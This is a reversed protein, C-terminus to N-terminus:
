GNKVPVGYHAKFVTVVQEGDIEATVKVKVDGLLVSEENIIFEKGISTGAGVGEFLESESGAILEINLPYNENNDVKCTVVSKGDEENLVAEATVDIVYLKVSNSTVEGATNFVSVSYTGADAKTVFDRRFIINDSENFGDPALIIEGDKFWQYGLGIGKADVVFGVEDGPVAAASVPQSIIVPPEAVTDYTRLMMGAEPFERINGDNGVHMYTGNKLVPGVAVGYGGNDAKTSLKLSFEGGGVVPEPLNLSVQQPAWRITRADLEWELEEGSPLTLTAVLPANVDPEQPAQEAAKEPGADPTRQFVSPRVSAVVHDATEIWTQVVSQTNSVTLAAQYADPVATEIPDALPFEVSPTVEMPLIKGDEDYTLPYFWQGGLAMNADGPQAYTDAKPAGQPSSIYHKFMIFTRYNGDADYVTCSGNPQAYGAGADDAIISPIVPWEESGTDPSIWPGRPDKAMVYTFNSGIPNGGGHDGTIYWWGNEYHIGIGGNLISTDVGTEYCEVIGTREENLLFVDISGHSRVFWAEGNPGIGLDFDRGLNEYTPDLPNDPYRPESWPGYPTESEMIWKGAYPGGQGNGFWMVYRGTKESYVVRTKKPLFVRGTDPDQPFCRSILKWNMLDKSEYIVLGGSRYYSNPQTPLTATMNAGPAIDFGGYAFSCSYMYYKGDFYSIDGTITAENANGDVDMMINIPGYRTPDIAPSTPLGNEGHLPDDSIFNHFIATSRVERDTREERTEEARVEAEEKETGTQLLPDTTTVDTKGCAASCVVVAAALLAGLM